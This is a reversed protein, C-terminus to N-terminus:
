VSARELRERLLVSHFAVFAIYALAGGLFVYVAATMGFRPILTYNGACEILLVAVMGCLMTGTRQVIELPKHVLLAIQWLFGGLMLLPLLSSPARNDAGLALRTLPSAFLIGVVEVPIFMLVQMRIAHGITQRATAYDGLNWLRMIRPHAAQTVPAAFLSFSRVALEYLSAYVGAQAYGGYRQIASRGVIPLTQCLMLWVGVAWGFRWLEKLVRSSEGQDPKAVASTIELSSRLGGAGVALPLAYALALGLLLLFFSRGGAVMVLCVPLLFGAASRLAENMVVSRPQLRAQLGTLCVLYVLQVFCYVEAIIWMSWRYRMALLIPALALALVLVAYTTGLLVARHFPSGPGSSDESSPHFRLISQQLWGSGFGVLALLVPLIVSLRGYEEIGILRVFVPVSVLGFFGPVVKSVLYSLSDRVLPGASQLSGQCTEAEILTEADLAESLVEERSRSTM